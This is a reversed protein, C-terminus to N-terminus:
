YKKVYKKKITRKRLKKGGKKNRVKRSKKGGSQNNEAKSICENAKEKCQEMQYNQNNVSANFDIKNICNAKEQLCKSYRNNKTGKSLEQVLINKQKEAYESVAKSLDVKKVESIKKLHLCDVNQIVNVNEDNFANAIVDMVIDELFLNFDKTNDDIKKSLLDDYIKSSYLLMQLRSIYTNLLTIEENIEDDVDDFNFILNYLRNIYKEKQIKEESSILKKFSRSFLTPKGEEIMSCINVLNNEDKYSGSELTNKYGLISCCINIIKITKMIASNIFYNITKNYSNNEDSKKIFFLYKRYILLMLDYENLRKVVSQLKAIVTNSYNIREDSSIANSISKKENTIDDYTNYVNNFTTSIMKINETSSFLNKVGYFIDTIKSIGGLSILLSYLIISSIIKLKKFIIKRKSKKKIDEVFYKNTDEVIHDIDSQKITLFNQLTIKESNM